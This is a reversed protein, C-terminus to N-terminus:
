EGRDWAPKRKELFAGIGEHAEEGARAQLHHAMGIEIDEPLDRPYLQDFLRKTVALAEPAGRLIETIVKRAETEMDGVRHFLGMQLAREARVSEGSLLLYRIDTPRLKRILVTMVQAAVLGRRVEPFGIVAESDAVVFDCAAVLGAGGGMALGHVMAVTTAPFQCLSLLTKKIMRASEDGLKPNMVEALDAGASFVPGNGRLAVVRIRKDAAITELRSCLQKMLEISLANRKDPRNLACTVFDESHRNLIVLNDNM